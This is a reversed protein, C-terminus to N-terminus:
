STQEALAEELQGVVQQQIQQTNQLKKILEMELLEMEMIQQELQKQKDVEEHVRSEYDEKFEEMKKKKMQQLKNARNREDERVQKSKKRNTDTYANIIQQKRQVSYVKLEKGEKYADQRAKLIAEQHKNKHSENSQKLKQINKQADKLEQDKREAHKKRFKEKEKSRLQFESLQEHRKKANDIRKWTKEEELQLLKIRNNLLTFDQELQKREKKVTSLNRTDTSTEM